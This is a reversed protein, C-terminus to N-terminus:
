REQWCVDAHAILYMNGSLEGVAFSDVTANDLEHSFPYQGPAVTQEAKKNTPVPSVGVYLHTRQLKVGQCARFTVEMSSALSYKVEVTGVVTGKSLDNKAAAAYLDFSYTGLALPGNTWGWNAFGYASFPNALIGGYAYATECVQKPTCEVTVLLRVSYTANQRACQEVLVHLAGMVVSDRGSGEGAAISVATVTLDPIDDIEPTSADEDVVLTVNRGAQGNCAYGFYITPYYGPYANDIEFLAEQLGADVWARVRAVDSNYRPFACGPAQGSAPAPIAGPDNGSSADPWYSYAANDHTDGPDIPDYGGVRDEHGDDNSVIWSFGGVAAGSVTRDLKPGGSFGAYSVGTASFAVVASFGLLLSERVVREFRSKTLRGRRMVGM